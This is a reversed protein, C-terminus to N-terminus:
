KTGHAAVALTRGWGPSCFQRGDCLLLARLRNPFVEAVQTRAPVSRQLLGRRSGLGNGTLPPSDGQGGCVRVSVALYGSLAVARGSGYRLPPGLRSSWARASASESGLRLLTNPTRFRAALSGLGRVDVLRDSRM